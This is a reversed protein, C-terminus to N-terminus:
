ISCCEGIQSRRRKRYGLEDFAWHELVLTRGARYIDYTGDFECDYLTFKGSISGYYEAVDLNFGDDPFVMIDVTRDKARIGRVPVLMMTEGVEFVVGGREILAGELIMEAEFRIRWDKKDLVAWLGWMKDFKCADDNYVADLFERVTTAKELHPKLSPWVDGGVGACSIIERYSKVLSAPMSEVQEMLEEYNM